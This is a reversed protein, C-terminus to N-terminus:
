NWEWLVGWRLTVNKNGYAERLLTIEPAYATEFWAIEGAIQEPTLCMAGSEMYHNVWHTRDPWGERSENPVWRDLGDIDCPALAEGLRDMLEWKSPVVESKVKPMDVIPSGCEKCFKSDAVQRKNQRVGCTENSCTRFTSEISKKAPKAEVYSGIYTRIHVGM